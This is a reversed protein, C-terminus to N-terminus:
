KTLKLHRFRISSEPIDPVINKMHLNRPSLQKRDNRSLYQLYRQWVRETVLKPKHYLINGSPPGYRDYKKWSVHPFNPIQTWIDHGRVKVRCTEILIAYWLSDQPENSADRNAADVPATKPKTGLKTISIHVISFKM